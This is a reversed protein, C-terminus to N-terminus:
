DVLLTLIACSVFTRLLLVKRSFITKTLHSSFLSRKDGKKRLIALLKKESNLSLLQLLCSRNEYIAESESFDSEEEEEEKENLGFFKEKENDDM